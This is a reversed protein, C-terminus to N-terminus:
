KRLRLYIPGLAPKLTRRIRVDVIQLATWAADLARGIRKLGLADVRARHRDWFYLGSFTLGGALYDVDVDAWTAPPVRSAAKILLHYDAAPSMGVDFGGLARILDVRMVVAQHCLTARGWLHKTRSYPIKGIQPRVKRGTLDIVRARSYGWDPEAEIRRLVRGIAGEDAFRDGANMFVVYDGKVINLSKNMADFIGDDPESVALHAFNFGASRYWDATGDSSAGDILVHEWGHSQTQRELSEVTRQVNALDNWCVTVISLRVTSKASM